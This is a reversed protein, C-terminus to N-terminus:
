IKANRGRAYDEITVDLDSATFRWSPADGDCTTFTGRELRYDEKGTKIFRAGRMHFNRQKIFLDGNEAEGLGTVYNIRVRDSTLISGERLLSVKGEAVAENEGKRVSASDSLLTFQDWRIEVNGTARLFDKEKDYSVADAKVKLEGAGPVGEAAAARFPIVALFLMALFIKSILQRM